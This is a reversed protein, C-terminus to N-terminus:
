FLQRFLVIRLLARGKLPSTNPECEPTDNRGTVPRYPLESM